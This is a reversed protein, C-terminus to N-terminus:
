HVAQQRPRWTSWGPHVPFFRSAGPAAAPRESRPVITASAPVPEWWPQRRFLRSFLEFRRLAPGYVLEAPAPEEIPQWRVDGSVRLWNCRNPLAAHSTLCHFLLRGGSPLADDGM